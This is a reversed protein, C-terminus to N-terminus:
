FPSQNEDVNTEKQQELTKAGVPATSAKPPYYVWPRIGNMSKSSRKREFGM